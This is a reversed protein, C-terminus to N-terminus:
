CGGVFGRGLAPNMAAITIEPKNTPENTTPDTMLATSLSLAVPDPLLAEGLTGTDVLVIVTVASGVTSGV